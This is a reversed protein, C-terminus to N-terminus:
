KPRSFYVLAWGVTAVIIAAILAWIRKGWEDKQDKSRERWAKLDDLDKRAVALDIKAQDIPGFADKWARLDKMQQELVALIRGCAALEKTLEAKEASFGSLQRRVFDETPAEAPAL